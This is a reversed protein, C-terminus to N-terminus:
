PKTVREAEHRLADAVFRTISRGSRKAADRYIDAVEQRLMSGILVRNHHDWESKQRARLQRAAMADAMMDKAREEAIAHIMNEIDKCDIVAYGERPEVKVSIM